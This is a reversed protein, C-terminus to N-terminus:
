DHGQPHRHHHRPAPEGVDDGSAYAIEFDTLTRAGQCAALVLLFTSVLAFATLVKKFNKMGTLYCGCQLAVTISVYMDNDPM